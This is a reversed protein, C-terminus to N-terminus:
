KGDGFRKMLELELWKERRGEGRGGEKKKFFELM